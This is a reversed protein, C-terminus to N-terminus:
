YELGERNEKLWLNGPRLKRRLGLERQVSRAAEKFRKALALTLMRWKRSLFSIIIGLKRDIFKSKKRLEKNEKELQLWGSLIHYQNYSLVSGSLIKNDQKPREEKNRRLRKRKKKEIKGKMCELDERKRETPLSKSTLLRHKM